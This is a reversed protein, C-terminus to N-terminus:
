FRAVGRVADGVRAQGPLYAPELLCPFPTDWGCVRTPPAELRLFCRDAIAAAVEAGFGATVPAEHSVVLRGTRSVSAEVAGVDWPLLTRLDIVDCSIGDEAHLQEAQLRPTCSTPTPHPPPSPSPPPPPTSSCSAGRVQGRWGTVRGGGEM